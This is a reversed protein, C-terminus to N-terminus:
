ARNRRLVVSKRCAWDMSVPPFFRGDKLCLEFAVEKVFSDKRRQWGGRDEAPAERIAVMGVSLAQRCPVTGAAHLATIICM